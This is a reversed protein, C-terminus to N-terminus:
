LLAVQGDDQVRVQGEHAVGLVLAGHFLAPEEFGQVLAVQGEQTREITQVTAANRKGDGHRERRREGRHQAVIEQASQRKEACRAKRFFLCSAV